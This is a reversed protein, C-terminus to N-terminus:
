KSAETPAAVTERASGTTTSAMYVNIFASALAAFSAIDQTVIDGVGAFKITGGALLAAIAAAGHLLARSNM